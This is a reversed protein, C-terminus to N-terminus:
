LGSMRHVSLMLGSGPCWTDVSFLSTVSICVCVYVCKTFLFFCLMTDIVYDRVALRPSGIM